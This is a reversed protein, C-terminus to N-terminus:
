RKLTFFRIWGTYPDLILIRGLHDAAVDLGGTNCDASKENCVRDHQTFQEPGAVVGVFEGDNNYIKVRTLGKECTVFGGAPLLALSIPNCCGCFGEIDNGFRGWSFEFDGNVTYAEIRHMGTNAVRLLGDPALALDFYPSPIVFGPINRSPDKKGMRSLLKGNKDYKLVIRNGADAVFVSDSSVAMSSLVAKPGLKDWQAVLDGRADYVQVHDKMGVYLLGNEGPALCYPPENVAIQKPATEKEHYVLIARDGAVYINGDKGLAIGRPEALATNIGPHEEQYIFLNPDIRRSAALDYDFQDGLGSGQKGTTDIRLFAIVGVAIAAILILGIVVNVLSRDSSAKM